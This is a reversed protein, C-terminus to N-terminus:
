LGGLAQAATQVASAHRIIQFGFQPSESKELSKSSQMKLLKVKTIPYLPGNPFPGGIDTKGHFM